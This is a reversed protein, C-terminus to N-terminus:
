KGNIGTEHETFSHSVKRNVTEKSSGKGNWQNGYANSTLIIM